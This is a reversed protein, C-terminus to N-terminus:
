EAKPKDQQKEPGPEPVPDYGSGGWPNCSLIRKVSLLSGKFPGHKQLAEIAYQSCTPTYRCSPPLLPSIAQRYFHVPALLLCTLVRRIIKLM